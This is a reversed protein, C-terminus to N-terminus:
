DNGLAAAEPAPSVKMAKVEAMMRSWSPAFASVEVFVFPTGHKGAKKAAHQLKDLEDANPWLEPDLDGLRNGGGLYVNFDVPEGKEDHAADVLM